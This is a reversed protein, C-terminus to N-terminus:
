TGSAEADPADRTRAEHVATAIADY